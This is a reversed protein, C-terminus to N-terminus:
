DKKIINVYNTKVTPVLFNNRYRQVVKLETSHVIKLPALRFVDQGDHRFKYLYKKNYNYNIKAGSVINISLPIPNNVSTYINSHEEVNNHNLSVITIIVLGLILILLPKLITKFIFKKNILFKILVIAIVVISLIIFFM